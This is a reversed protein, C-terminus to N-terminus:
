WMRMTPGPSMAIKFNNQNGPMTDIADMKPRNCCQELTAYTFFLLLKFFKVKNKFYSLLLAM